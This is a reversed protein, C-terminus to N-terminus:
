SHHHHKTPLNHHHPFKLPKQNHHHLTYPHPLQTPISSVQESELRQKREESRKLTAERANMMIEPVNSLDKGKIQTRARKVRTAISNPETAASSEIQVDNWKSAFKHSTKTRKLVPEEMPTDLVIDEAKSPILM